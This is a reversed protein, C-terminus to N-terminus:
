REILKLTFEKVVDVNKLYQDINQTVFHDPMIGKEDPLDTATSVHTNNAVYYDLKTNKLRCTTSGASCFQNSGLEEGVITGLKFKKVLSMFHGTTSNGIGDIMFFVKGQYRKKFPTIMVEGEIKGQKGAFEARSYYIFPKDILYRLLHIASSQSGGGNFRVDIVLNKITKEEMEKFSRDIFSTFVDLNSWTYYNFSGITMIATQKEKRIEMCLQDKCYKLPDRFPDKYTDAKNLIVPYKVDKIVISYSEPFSLAYPIMSTSWENFVHNKTTKIYGQAQIHQYINHILDSVAVGNISLIEDKVKVKDANNYPDIIFLQNNVWRTQVPFRLSLPLMANEPYFNGIGTHSCHISAIIENCHWVFQSYTTNKTILNKKDSIVKMIEDESIFKLANPHLKLISKGLQDLDAKYEEPPFTKFFKEAPTEPKKDPFKIREIQDEANFNEPNLSLSIEYNLLSLEKNGNKLYAEGLSDYANSSGFEQVILKFIEIAEVIKNEWLFGYGYMTLEDENEFNYTDPSEKKLKQYLAMREGILLHDNEKLKQVISLKVAVGITNTEELITRNSKNM